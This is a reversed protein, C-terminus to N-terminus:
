ALVGVPTPTYGPFLSGGLGLQVRALESFLDRYDTTVALDRGEYLQSRGLGPWRGHVRGGRVRGGLVISCHASGHDTGLTGNVAATRGFETTVMLAVDDLRRGLDTDFAALSAALSAFDAQNSALQNAHTDFSGGVNVFVCRTGLDAKIIQAAQRLAGGASTAPYQAGNDPAAGIGPAGALADIADFTERGVRAALEASGAEYIGRLLRDAESVWGRAQLTFGSLNSAVLVPEPGLFSRPQLSSIAVGEVVESGPLQGLARSLWGTATTKDGPTGSEMFDQADFHSRTPDPSGVAHVIALRRDKWYPMLPELAPHLGFFGDLDLAADRGGNPPPVAITPRLGRYRGDGYPVVTNLGDCAGRQLVVVLTKRRAKPRGDGLAAARLLVRPAVGFSVLALGSSELFARRSGM